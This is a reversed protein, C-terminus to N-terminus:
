MNNQVKKNIAQNLPLLTTGYKIIVPKIGMNCTNWGKLQSEALISKM